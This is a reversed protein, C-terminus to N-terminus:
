PIVSQFSSSSVMRANAQRSGLGMIPDEITKRKFPIVEEPSKEM